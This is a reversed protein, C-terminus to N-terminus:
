ARSLRPASNCVGLDEGAFLVSRRPTRMVYANFGRHRDWAARAGWHEPRLAAFTVGRHSLEQDWDIEIVDGFGSPILRGTHRATIVTTRKSVLRRLTPRDLHDFHAHSILIVDIPPPMRPRDDTTIPRAAPAMTPRIM